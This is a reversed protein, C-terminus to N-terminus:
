RPRQFEEMFPNLHSRWEQKKSAVEPPDNKKEQNDQWAQRLARQDNSIDDVQVKVNVLNRLEDRERTLAEIRKEVETKEAPGSDAKEEPNAEQQQEDAM